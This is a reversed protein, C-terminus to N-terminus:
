GMPNKYMGPTQKPNRGDVTYRSGLRVLILIKLLRGLISRSHNTKALSKDAKQLKPVRKKFSCIILHAFQLSKM